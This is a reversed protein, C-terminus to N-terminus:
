EIGNLVKWLLKVRNGKIFKFKSSESWKKDDLDLLWHRIEHYSPDKESFETEYYKGLDEAVFRPVGMMRLTLAPKSRVGFYILAPIHSIKDFEVEKNYFASLKQLANTGWSIQQMLQSHVYNSAKFVREQPDRVRYFFEESIEPVSAGNVWSKTLESIEDINLEGGVFRSLDVEPIDKIVEIVNKLQPTNKTFLLYEDWFKSNQIINEKSRAIIAGVSISTFGTSDVLQQLGSNDKLIGLSELYKRSLQILKIGSQGSQELQFYVLSSRLTEELDSNVQNYSSMKVTHLLYQIFNALDPNIKVFNLDFRLRNLDIADLTVLISSLIEDSKEKNYQQFKELDKSSSITFVILGMHDYFARGARGAINWFESYTMDRPPRSPISVSEIIVHKIPFNVGQALTTTAALVKIQGSDVLREILYRSELSLGAHHIGIGKKLLKPLVHNEGLEERIYDIILESLDDLKVDPLYKMLETARETTDPRTRCLILVCGDDSLLNLATAVSSKKNTNRTGEPIFEYYKISIQNKVYPSAFSPVIQLDLYEHNRYSRVRSLGTIQESAKWFVQIAKSQTGGLWQAIQNSNPIFPSLLLFRVNEREQNITSLLLELKAGRGKQQLNHAEDVVILSIDEVCPHNEKILLDLKEPTSVLVNFDKKLLKNEISDLEFVPVASEVIINMQSFKRRLNLTIQNVLARTPVLYIVKSKDSGSIAQIISFEAMLTKGASTPMSIVISRKVLSFPDQELAKQQSPLLEIIPSKVDKTLVGVYERIKKNTLLARTNYWISNKILQYCGVYLMDKILFLDDPVGYKTTFSANDYFRKIKTLINSPRGNLTYQATLDVIKALNYYIILEPIIREKKQILFDREFIKQDRRLEDIINLTNEVDQWGNEKRILYIVAELIRNRLKENWQQQDPPFDKKDIDLDKLLVRIQAINESLVGSISFYFLNELIYQEKDVINSRRCIFAIEFWKTLLKINQRTKENILAESAIQEILISIEEAIITYQDNKPLSSLFTKIHENNAEVLIKDVDFDSFIGNFRELESKSYADIM